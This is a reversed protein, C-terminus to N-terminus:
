VERPKFEFEELTGKIKIYGEVVSDVDRYSSRIIREADVFEMGDVHVYQYLLLSYLLTELESITPITITTGGFYELLKLLNDKDLTYALESLTSYEKVKNCRFLVFLLLSFIDKNRLNLLEDKIKM